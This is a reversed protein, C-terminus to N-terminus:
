NKSAFAPLNVRLHRCAAEWTSVIEINFAGKWAAKFMMALATPKPESFVAVWRGSSSSRKHLFSILAQLDDLGARTTVGELNVIGNFLPDYGPDAWLREIGRTVDGLSISGNFRLLCVREAPMLLYTFKAPEPLSM